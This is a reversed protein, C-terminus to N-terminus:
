LQFAPLAAIFDQEAYGAAYGAKARANVLEINERNHSDMTSALVRLRSGQIYEKEEELQRLQYESLKNLQSRILHDISVKFYSSISLLFDLPPNLAVGNEYSNLKARTVNLESALMEQSLKRRNRLLRINDGLFIM